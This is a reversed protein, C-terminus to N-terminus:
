YAPRVIATIRMSRLPVKKVRQGSSPSHIVYGLGVYIGVHGGGNYIVIDGPSINSAPVKKLNKWQAYSTRPISRGAYKWTGQTLGSCDWASPGTGGYRYRDGIQAYAFDVAKQARVHPTVKRTKPVAAPAINAPAAAKSAPAAPEAAAPQASIAISGAGVALAAAGAAATRAFLKM